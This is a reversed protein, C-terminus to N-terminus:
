TGNTHPTGTPLTVEALVGSAPSTWFPDTLGYTSKETSSRTPTTTSGGRTSGRWANSAGGSGVTVAVAVMVAVAVAVTVSVGSANTDGVGLGFALGVGLGCGVEVGVGVGGGGVAVGAPGVM